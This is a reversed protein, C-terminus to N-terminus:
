IVLFFSIYVILFLKDSVSVATSNHDMQLFYIIM